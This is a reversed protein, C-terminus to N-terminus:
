ASPDFTNDAKCGSFRCVARDRILEHVVELVATRSQRSTRKLKSRRRKARLRGGAHHPTSSYLEIREASLLANM